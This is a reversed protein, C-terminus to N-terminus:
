QVISPWDSASLCCASAARFTPKPSANARSPKRPSAPMVSYSFRSNYGAYQPISAALRASVPYVGLKLAMGSESASCRFESAIWGYSSSVSGPCIPAPNPWAREIAAVAGSASAARGAFVRAVAGSIAGVNHFAVLATAAPIGRPTPAM